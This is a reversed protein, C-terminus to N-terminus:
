KFKEWCEACLLEDSSPDDASGLAAVWMTENQVERGCEACQWAEDGVQVEDGVLRDPNFEM